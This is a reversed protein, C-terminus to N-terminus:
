VQSLRCVVTKSLAKQTGKQVGTSFPDTRIRFENPIDETLRVEELTKISLTLKWMGRHHFTGRCLVPIGLSGERGRHEWLPEIASWLGGPCDHVSRWSVCKRCRLM